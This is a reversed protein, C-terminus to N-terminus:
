QNISHSRIWQHYHQMKKQLDQKHVNIKCSCDETVKQVAQIWVHLWASDKGKFNQKQQLVKTLRLM